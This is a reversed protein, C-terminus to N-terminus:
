SPVNLMAETYTSSGTIPYWARSEPTDWDKWSIQGISDEVPPTPLEHHESELAWSREM